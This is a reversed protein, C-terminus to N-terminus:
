EKLLYMKSILPGLPQYEQDKILDFEKVFYLFHKFSTNLHQYCKLRELQHFHEHYIHAYVRFLRSFIKHVIQHFHEPFPEGIKSPFLTDDDIQEQTWIFLRASYQDASLRVPTQHASESWLYEVKPGANMIACTKESCYETIVSFLMKVQDLFIKTHYALWENIDIEEPLLVITRFDCNTDYDELIDFNLFNPRKQVNPKQARADYRVSQSNHLNTHHPHLRSRRRYKGNSNM